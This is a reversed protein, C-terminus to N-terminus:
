EARESEREGVLRKKGKEREDEAERGRVKRNGRTKEDQTGGGTLYFWLSTNFSRSSVTTAFKGERGKGNNVLSMM